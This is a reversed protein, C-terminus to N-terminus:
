FEIGKRATVGKDYPHRIKKFQTIYDCLATIGIAATHGTIVLETEDNCKAIVELIEEDSAVGCDVLSLVEDLIIMGYNNNEIHAIVQKLLDKYFSCCREFENDDMDRVFKLKAPCETLTIGHISKLIKREGSNDSKLFQVFLINNGTAAYRIAMGVACTTKGKGDGYILHKM